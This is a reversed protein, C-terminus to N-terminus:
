ILWSGGLGWVYPKVVDFYKGAEQLTEETNVSHDREVLGTALAGASVTSPIFM